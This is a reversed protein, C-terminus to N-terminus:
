GFAGNIDLCILSLLSLHLSNTDQEDQGTAKRNKTRGLAEELEEMTILNGEYGVSNNTEINSHHGSLKFYDM